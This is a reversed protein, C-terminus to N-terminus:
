PLQRYIWLPLASPQRRPNRSLPLAPQCPGVIVAIYPDGSMSSARLHLVEGVVVDGGGRGQFPLRGADPAGIQGLDNGIRRHLEAAEPVGLELAYIYAYTLFFCAADLDNTAEAAQTYLRILTHRDDVAHAALLEADLSATM